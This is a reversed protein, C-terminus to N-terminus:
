VPIEDLSYRSVEEDMEKRIIYEGGLDKASLLYKIGHRHTIDIHQENKILYMKHFKNKNRPIRIVHNDGDIHYTIHVHTDHLIATNERPFFKLKIYNLLIM